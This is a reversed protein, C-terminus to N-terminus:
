STVEIVLNRLGDVRLRDGPPLVTASSYESIIAPGSFSDGSMLQDRSYIRTAVFAGDFWVPRTTMLAQTGDGQGLPELTQVFPPAPAVM